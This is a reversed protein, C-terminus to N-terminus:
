EYYYHRYKSYYYGGYNYLSQRQVDCRTMVVGAVDAGSAVLDKLAAQAASRPTSDWRVCFAVKDIGPLVNKTDHVPLLPASDLVVLDYSESLHELLDAMRRSALLDPPSVPRTAVPLIHLDSLTDKLIAKDLTTQQTLYEVLGTELEKRGLTRAVSPHRLDADVIIVKKGGSAVLRAYSIAFTTKGEGPMASTILLKKVGHDVDSTQLANHFGRLGEVYGSLPKDIVYDIPNTGARVLKRELEQISSLVPASLLREVQEKRRFGNDLQELAFAAGIGFAFAIVAAGALMLRKRPYSPGNPVPAASIVRADPTQISEQDQTEKFRTLYAEYLQRSSTAARELERLKIRAKNQEAATAGLEDLRRELAAVRSRALDVENRQQVIIRRVEADIKDALNQREARIQVMRPHRAGYRNSLEAEKRLLEAEQGRLGAILSSNLVQTITDLGIGRKYLNDVQRLKANAEAETAKAISLQANLESLQRDVLSQGGEIDTLDNEIRYQQVVREDHELQDNLDQLREALWETARRNAEFKVELQENVYEESIANALRASLDPSVSTYRITLATSLGEVSVSLGGLLRDILAEESLTKPKAETEQAEARGRFWNLPNLYSLLGPKPPQPLFYANHALDLKRIVRRALSRSRIIQVQNEISAQDASLQSIVSEVDVVQQKRTDIMVTATATYLPTIGSIYLFAMTMLIAFCGAVIRWRARLMQLIGVIPVEFGGGAPSTDAGQSQGIPPIDAPRHPSTYNM